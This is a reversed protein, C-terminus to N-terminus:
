ACTLFQQQPRVSCLAKGFPPGRIAPFNFGPQNQPCPDWLLVPSAHLACFPRSIPPALPFAPDGPIDLSPWGCCPVLPLLLCCHSGAHHHDGRPQTRQARVLAWRHRHPGLVHYLHHSPPCLLTSDHSSARHEPPISPRVASEGLLHVDQFFATLM